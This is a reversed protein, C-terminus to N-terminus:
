VSKEIKVVVEGANVTQGEKVKLKSVIGDFPAKVEVQLKMSEMLLLVQNEEVKDGENVMIKLIKGPMPPEIEGNSIGRSGSEAQEEVTKRHVSYTEGEIHLYLNNRDDSVFFVPILIGERELYFNDGEKFVNLSIEEGNVAASLRNESIMKKEVNFEENDIVFVAM